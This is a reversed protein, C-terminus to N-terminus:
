TSKLNRLPANNNSGGTSFTSAKRTNINNSTM